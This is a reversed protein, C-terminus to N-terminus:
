NVPVRQTCTVVTGSPLSPLEMEVVGGTTVRLTSTNVSAAVTGNWGLPYSRGNSPATPLANAFAITTGATTTATATMVIDVEYRGDTTLQYRGQNVTWNASGTGSLTGLSHWTDTTILTPTSTSGGTSTVTGSVNVNGTVHFAGDTSGSV